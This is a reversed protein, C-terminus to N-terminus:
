GKPKQVSASTGFVPADPASASSLSVESGFLPPDDTKVGGHVLQLQEDDLEITHGADHDSM